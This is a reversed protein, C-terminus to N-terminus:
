RTGSKGHPPPSTAEGRHLSWALLPPTVLTTVMVMIVAAAYSPASVVAVGGLTVTTGVNAFILGVEGRPIMGLGVSLRDVGPGFAALACAQKGLIAVVTLCAALLLVGGSLAALDVLAGTAVFFVPVLFSTIPRLQVELGQEDRTALDRCTVEELVLGAAFAGVIPHLGVLSSLYAMAFCFALAAALLVGRIQLYAVARFLIRSAPGGMLAAGALFGVALLAIRAVEWGGMSRGGDAAQVIGVVVALVVLGIVDDIVAAGLIVRATPSDIRGLDRLVRATIGVSTAALVAGIFLHVHWTADPVLLWHVGFGLAVPLIVGIVAVGAASLGVRAMKGLDSELGVEFLLLIVGLEALGGLVPEATFREFWRWGLLDLNGLAVGGLLEGLVAPQGLREALEGMLKAVVLILALGLLIHPGLHM